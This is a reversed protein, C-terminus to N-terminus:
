KEAKNNGFEYLISKQSNQKRGNETSAWVLTIYIM